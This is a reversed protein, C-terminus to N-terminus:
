WRSDTDEVRSDRLSDDQYAGHGLATFSKEGTFHPPISRIAFLSSVAIIRSGATGAWHAMRELLWPWRGQYCANKDDVFPLPGVIRNTEM